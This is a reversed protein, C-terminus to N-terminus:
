FGSLGPFESVQRTGGRHHAAGLAGRPKPVRATAATPLEGGQTAVAAAGTRGMARGRQTIIVRAHTAPQLSACMALFMHAVAGLKRQMYERAAQPAPMIWNVATWRASPRAAVCAPAPAPPEVRLPQQVANPLVIVIYLLQQLVPRRM